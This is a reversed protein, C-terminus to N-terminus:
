YLSGCRTPSINWSRPLFIWILRHYVAIDSLLFYSELVLSITDFSVPLMNGHDLNYFNFCLFFFSQLQNFSITYIFFIWSNEVINLSLFWYFTIEWWKHCGKFWNRSQFSATLSFLYNIGGQWHANMAVLHESNFLFGRSSLIIVIM